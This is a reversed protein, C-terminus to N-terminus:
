PRNERVTRTGPPIRRDEDIPTPSHAAHLEVDVEHRKTDVRCVRDDSDFNRASRLCLSAAWCRTGPSTSLAARGQVRANPPRSMPAVLTGSAVHDRRKGLLWSEGVMTGM